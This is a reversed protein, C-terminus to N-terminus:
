LFLNKRRYKKDRMLPSVNSEDKHCNGAPIFLMEKNSNLCFPWWGQPPHGLSTINRYIEFLLM